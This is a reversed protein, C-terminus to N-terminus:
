KAKATKARKVIKVNKLEFKILQEKVDEETYGGRVGKLVLTKPKQGKPTFTYFQMGKATLIEKFKTHEDSNTPTVSVTNKATQALTFKGINSNPNNFITILSKINTNLVIIPPSNSKKRAETKSTTNVYSVTDDAEM